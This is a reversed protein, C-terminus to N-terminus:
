STTIYIKNISDTCTFVMRVNGGLKNEADTRIDIKIIKLENPVLKVNCIEYPNIENPVKLHLTFKTGSTSIVPITYNIVLNKNHVLKLHSPCEINNGSLVYNFLEVEEFYNKGNSNKTSDINEIIGTKGVFDTSPTSPTSYSGGSICTVPEYYIGYKESYINTSTGQTYYGLKYIFRENTTSYVQSTNFIPDGVSVHDPFVKMECRTPFFSKILFFIFYLSYIFNTFLLM